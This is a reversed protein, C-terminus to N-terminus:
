IDIVNLILIFLIFKFNRCNPPRVSHAGVITVNFEYESVMIWYRIGQSIILFHLM